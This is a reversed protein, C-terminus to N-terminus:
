AGRGRYKRGLDKIVARDEQELEERDEFSAQLQPTELLFEPRLAPGMEQMAWFRYLAEVGLYVAVAFHEGLSGMVSVFGVDGNEPNELAFIEDEEMFEWPALEKIAAFADYLRRWEDLTPSQEDDM